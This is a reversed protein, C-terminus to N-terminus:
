LHPPISLLVMSFYSFSAASCPFAEKLYAQTMSLSLLSLSLPIVMSIERQCNSDGLYWKVMMSAGPWLSKMLFMIVPVEWASQAMRM